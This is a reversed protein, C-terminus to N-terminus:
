ARLSQAGCGGQSQSNNDGQRSSLASVTSLLHPGPHTVFSSSRALWLQLWPILSVPICCRLGVAGGRSCWGLAGPSCGSSSLLSLLTWKRLQVPESDASVCWWKGVDRHWASFFVSSSVNLLEGLAVAQTRRAKAAMHQHSGCGHKQELEPCETGTADCPGVPVECEAPGLLSGDM